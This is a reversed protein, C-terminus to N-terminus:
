DCSAAADPVALVGHGFGKTGGRKESSHLGNCNAVGAVRVNASCNAPERSQQQVIADHGLPVAKERGVIARNAEITKNSHCGSEFDSFIFLFLSCIQSIEIGHYKECSESFM